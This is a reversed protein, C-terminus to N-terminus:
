GFGDVVGARHEASQRAVGACNELGQRLIGETWLIFLARRGEIDTMHKRQASELIQREVAQSEESRDRVGDGASPLDEVDGGDGARQGIRRGELTRGRRGLTIM